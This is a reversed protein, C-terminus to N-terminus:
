ESGPRRRRRRRRRTERLEILVLEREPDFGLGIMRARFLPVTPERLEAVTPPLSIPTKPISTPSATSSPWRKPPSSRSRSRRWWCPSSPRSPGPRSTSRASAPNAWPVRASRTSSTSNSPILCQVARRKRSRHRRTESPQPTPADRGDRRGAEAARLEDLGGTDNCKLMAVGHPSFAFRPSRRPRCWSASSCTSICAPTTRSRPRSRTPTRSWWWWNGPITPWWPKSRLSWARDADRGDGRRRSVGRAVALAAGGEVSRDQGPRRDEARDVRRLRGRARRRPAAGRARPPTAIARATQTTREIPSAYVRRDPLRAMREGLDRGAEAGDESLDIGPARGSLLPGTQATVAHRVLVLNRPADAACIAPTTVRLLRRACRVRLIRGHSSVRHRQGRGARGLRDEVRLRGVRERRQVLARSAGSARAARRSRRRRRATASTERRTPGARRARARRRRPTRTSGLRTGGRDRGGAPTPSARSPSRANAGRSWGRAEQAAEDPEALRRPADALGAFRLAAGLEHTLEVGLRSGPVRGGSREGDHFPGEDGADGALVTPM